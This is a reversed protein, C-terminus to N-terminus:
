VRGTPGDENPEDDDEEDRILRLTIEIVKTLIRNTMNQSINFQNFLFNFWPVQNQLQRYLQSATVDSNAQNLTYTVVFYYMYDVLQRNMGAQQLETYLNNHQSRLVQMIEQVSPQQRTEMGMYPHPYYNVPVYPVYYPYQYM